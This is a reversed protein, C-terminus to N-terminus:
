VLAFTVSLSHQCAVVCVCPLASLHWGPSCLRAADYLYRACGPTSGVVQQYTVLSWVVRDHRSPYYYYFSRRVGIVFVTCTYFVSSGHQYFFVTPQALFCRCPFELATVRQVVVWRSSISYNVIHSVSTMILSRELLPLPDLPSVRVAKRVYCVLLYQQQRQM